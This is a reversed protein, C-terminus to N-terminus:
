RGTEPEAEKKAAEPIESPWSVEDLSKLKEEEKLLPHFDPDEEALLLPKM